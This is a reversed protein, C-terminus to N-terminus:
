PARVDLLLSTSPALADLVGALKVTTEDVEQWPDSGPVIGAGAHLTAETGEATASRIGIVWRGDGDADVWGVPGAWQGRAEPELAAICALAEPRPLGGVAPTPHLDALLTLVSPPTGEADDGLTGEIQTGLHAVTHLRVLSPVAPVELATCRPRLAEEIAEVVLQHELRDKASSLFSDIAASDDSNADGDGHLALTGALPHCRVTRGRRDVLLEPSAGVFRGAGDGSPFSFVTCSPEQAWLRGLVSAVDVPEAFTAEVRRALVVKRLPGASLTALAREVAEAYGAPSPVETVKCEAAGAAEAGPRRTRALGAVQDVLAEARAVADAAVLTAWCRGDSSRGVTLEPVVLVGPAGREFPLAGFARVRATGMEARDTHAVASLWQLADRLARDDELGNPLEFRAAEGRGALSLDGDAVLVGTTGCVGVPDVSECPLLISVAELTAPDAVGTTV